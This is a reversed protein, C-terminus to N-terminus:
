SRVRPCLSSPHNKADFRYPTLSEVAVLVNLTKLNKQTQPPNEDCPSLSSSVVHRLSLESFRVADSPRNAYCRYIAVSTPDAVTGQVHALFELCQILLLQVRPRCHVLQNQQ